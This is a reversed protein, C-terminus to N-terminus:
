LVTFLNKFVVLNIAEGQIIFFTVTSQLGESLLVYLVM